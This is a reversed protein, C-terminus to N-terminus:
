ETIVREVTIGTAPMVNSIGIERQLVLILERYVKLWTAWNIRQRDTAVQVISKRGTEPMQTLYSEVLRDFVQRRAPDELAPRFLNELRGRVASEIAHGFLPDKVAADVLNTIVYDDCTTEAVLDARRCANWRHSAIESVIQRIQDETRKGAHFSRYVTPECVSTPMAKWFPGHVQGGKLMENIISCTFDGGDWDHSVRFGFPDTGAILWVIDLSRSAMNGSAILVHEFESIPSPLQARHRKIVELKGYQIGLSFRGQNSPDCKGTKVTRLIFECAERLKPSRTFRQHHGQLKADCTLLASKLAAIEVIPSIASSTRIAHSTGAPREWTASQPKGKLGLRELLVKLDDPNGSMMTPRHTGIDRAEVRTKRTLSGDDIAFDGLEGPVEVQM